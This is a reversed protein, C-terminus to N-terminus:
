FANVMKTEHKSHLVAAHGCAYEDNTPSRLWIIQDLTRGRFGSAQRIEIVVKGTMDNILGLALCRNPIRFTKMLLYRALRGLWPYYWDPVYYGWRDSSGMYCSQHLRHHTYVLGLIISDGFRVLQFGIGV